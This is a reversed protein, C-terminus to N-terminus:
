LASVLSSLWPGLLSLLGNLAESARRLAQWALRFRERDAGAGVNRRYRPLRRRPTVPPYAVLALLLSALGARHPADERQHRAWFARTGMSPSTATHFFGKSLLGAM